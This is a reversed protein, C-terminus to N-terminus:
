SILIQPWRRRVVPELAVYVIATILAWFTAQAIHWSGIIWEDVFTMPHHADFVLAILMAVGFVLAARLAGARDIQKRRLNARALALGFMPIAIMFAVFMAWALQDAVTRRRALAHKTLAESSFWVPRNHFSAAEIRRGDKALWDAKVDAPVAKLDVTQASLTARLRDLTTTLGPVLVKEAQDLVANGKHMLMDLADALRRASQTPETMANGAVKRLETITAAISALTEERTPPAKMEFPNLTTDLVFAADSILPGLLTNADLPDAPQYRAISAALQELFPQFVARDVM